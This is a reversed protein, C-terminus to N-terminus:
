RARRAWIIGYGFASSVAFTASGVLYVTTTGSLSIRQPVLSLVMDQMGSGTPPALQIRLENSPLTASTQSIGADVNTSTTTASFTYGISGYIDWDGATLSISAIDASTATTLTVASGSTTTASVYEGVSGTNANNNTTTGIIGATQGPTLSGGIKRSATM